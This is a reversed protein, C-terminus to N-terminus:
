KVVVKGAYIHVSGNKEQSKFVESKDGIQVETVPWLEQYSVSGSRAMRLKEQSTKLRKQLEAERKDYANRQEVLQELVNRKELSLTKGAMRLTSINKRLLELTGQTEELVAKVQQIEDALEPEYGVAIKTLTGSANGVKRCVVKEKVRIDGGLILGHEGGACLTGGSTIDCQDIVGAYVHQGAELKSKIIESAQVQYKAQVLICERIGKYARVSGNKSCVKSGNIGGLVVIDGTACVDANCSVDGKIYLHGAVDVKKGEVEDLITARRVAWNDDEWFAIGDTAAILSYGDEAIKTNKGQSIIVEHVEACPLVNGRVDVGDEGPVAPTIKCLVDGERVLQIKSDAGFAVEETEGVNISFSGCRKLVDTLASDKGDKPLIGRAITIIHLYERKRVIEEERSEFVGNDIGAYHRSRQLEELTIDQGGTEPPFVCVFASMIDESVFFCPFADLPESDDHEELYRRANQKLLSIFPKITQANGPIKKQDDKLNSNLKETLENYLQKRQRAKAVKAAKTTKIEKDKSDTQGSKKVFRDFISM